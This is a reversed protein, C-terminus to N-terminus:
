RPISPITASALRLPPERRCRTRRPSYRGSESDRLARAKKGRRRGRRACRHQKDVRLGGRLRVIFLYRADSRVRVKAQPCPASAVPGRVAVVSRTVEFPSFRLPSFRLPSFRLPSFRLPVLKVPGPMGTFTAYARKSPADTLPRVSSEAQSSPVTNWPILFPCSSEPNSKSLELKWADSSSPVGRLRRTTSMSRSSKGLLSTQDYRTCNRAPFPVQCRSQM